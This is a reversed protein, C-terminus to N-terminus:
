CVVRLILALLGFCPLNLTGWVIMLWAFSPAWHTHDAVHLLPLITVDKWCEHTLNINMYVVEDVAPASAPPPSGKRGRKRDEDADATHFVIEFPVLARSVVAEVLLVVESLAFSWPPFAGGGGTRCLAWLCVPLFWVHHGCTVKKILPTEPWFLYKAVGIPCKGTVLFGGLDVYWM